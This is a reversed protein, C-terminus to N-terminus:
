GRCRRLRDPGSVGTVAHHGAAARARSRSGRRSGRAGVHGGPAPRGHLWRRPPPHPLRPVGPGHQESHATLVADARAGAEPDLCVHLNWMGDRDYCRSASRLERQRMFREEPDVQAREAAAVREITQDSTQTPAGALLQNRVEEPVRAGGVAVAQAQTIQGQEFLEAVAPNELAIGAARVARGADGGALGTQAVLADAM